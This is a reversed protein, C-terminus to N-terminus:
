GLRARVEGGFRAYQVPDEDPGPQLIVADAGADAWSRVAAAIADADGAVGDDPQLNWRELEAALRADADPGTVAILYVTVRGRGARAGRAADFIERAKGVDEASTGGTLVTGDALEGALALTKPRVAGVHLAPPPTTPWALKVDRLQVYRGSVTVSEGALLDRLATLYERLLTMPSEARAGVQGMWDLVGHGLGVHVRGPFLRQLSAIEMAALAVNRLPVPLVGIGVELRQTWALAASATAIGGHEFCDEWLWLEDVGAEDAAVAVDRLLTSDFQPRFVIGLRTM